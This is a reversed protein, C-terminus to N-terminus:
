PENIGKQGLQITKEMDRAMRASRILMVYMNINYAVATILLGTSGTLVLWELRALTGSFLLTVSLLFIILQGKLLSHHFLDAPMPAQVKGIMPKFRNLWIIFPLTKFTQGLVLAGVFGILIGMGYVLSLSTAMRTPLELPLVLLLGAAVPITLLIFSLFSHKMAIDMKKRLRKQIVEAIFALYFGLGTVFAAAIIYWLWEGFQFFTQLFFNTLGGNVAWYTIDLKKFNLNHALTFMPLLKSGAGMILLLFWGGFGTHAHLKLYVLHDDPLFAYRLNFVLIVGLIATLILWVTASNIFDAAIHPSHARSITTFINVAFVSIGTLVLLGSAQALWDLRFGHFAFALGAIGPVMVAYTLYALKESFLKGQLIVPLMQYLAGFIIMSIWGLAGIHTISLIGPQFYHGLFDSVHLVMLAMMVLFFAGSTLYHLIVLSAGAAHTTNINQM